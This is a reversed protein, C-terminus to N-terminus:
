FKQYNYENEWHQIQSATTYVVSRKVVYGAADLEYTFDSIYTGILSTRRKCLNKNPKGYFSYSENFTWDPYGKLLTTSYEFSYDGVVVEQNNIVNTTQKATCNGDTITYTVTAYLVENNKYVEKTMYGDADYTFDVSEPNGSIGLTDYYNFNLRTAYGNSGLIWYGKWYMKNNIDYDTEVVRGSEYAFRWDSTKIGETNYISKTVLLGKSDYEYTERVVSDTSAQAIKQVVITKPDNTDDKKCFTLLVPALLLLLSFQFLKMKTM